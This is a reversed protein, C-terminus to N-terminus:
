NNAEDKIIECKALNLEHQHTIELTNYQFAKYIVYFLVIFISLILITMVKNESEM